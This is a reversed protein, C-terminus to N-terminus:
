IKSQTEFFSCIFGDEPQTDGKLLKQFIEKIKEPGNGHVLKTWNKAEKICAGMAVKMRNSYEVGLEDHRKQYWFPAFFVQYNKPTTSSTSSIPNNKGSTFADWHSLGVSISQTLSDGLHQSLKDLLQPDGSVDIYTSNTQSISTLSSYPIIQDYTQLKKV